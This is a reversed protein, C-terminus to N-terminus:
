VPRLSALKDPTLAWREISKGRERHAPIDMSDFAQGKSPSMVVAQAVVEMVRDGM